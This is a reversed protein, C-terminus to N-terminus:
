INCNIPYMYLIDLNAYTLKLMLFGWIKAMHPYSCLFLFIPLNQKFTNYKSSWPKTTTSQPNQPETELNRYKLQKTPANCKCSSDSMRNTVFKQLHITPVRIKSQGTRTKTPEQNRNNM